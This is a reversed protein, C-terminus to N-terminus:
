IKDLENLLVPDKGTICDAVEVGYIGLTFDSKSRTEMM